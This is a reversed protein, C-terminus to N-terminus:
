AKGKAQKRRFEAEIEANRKQQAKEAADGEEDMAHLTEQDVEGEVFTPHNKLKALVVPNTVETAEGRVFRQMGMFDIVRPSSAGGGIYTYIAPETTHLIEEGGEMEELPEKAVNKAEKERSNRRSM